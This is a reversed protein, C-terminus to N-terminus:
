IKGRRKIKREKVLKFKLPIASITKIFDVINIKKASKVAGILIMIRLFFIKYYRIDSEKIGVLFNSLEKTTMNNFTKHVLDHCLQCLVVKNQKTNIGSDAKRIIHHKITSYNWSCIWCKM